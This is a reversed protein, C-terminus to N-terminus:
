RTLLMYRSDHVDLVQSEELKNLRIEFDKQHYLCFQKIMTNKLVLPLSKEYTFLPHHYNEYEQFAGTDIWVSVANKGIKQAYIVMENLFNVINRVATDSKLSFNNSQNIDKGLIDRCDRIILSHNVNSENRSIPTNKNSEINNRVNEVTEYYPLIVFLESKKKGNASIYNTYVERITKLDPYVLVTHTGIGTSLLSNLVHHVGNNSSECKNPNMNM